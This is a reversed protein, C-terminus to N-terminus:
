KNAPKNATKSGFKSRGDTELLDSPLTSHPFKSIKKSASKSATKRAHWKTTALSEGAIKAAFKSVLKIRFDPVFKISPPPPTSTILFM